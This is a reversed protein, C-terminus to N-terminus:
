KGKSNIVKQFAPIDVTRFTGDDFFGGFVIYSRSALDPTLQVHAIGNRDFKLRTVLEIDKAKAKSKQWNVQYRFNRHGDGRAKKCVVLWAEMSPEDLKPLTLLLMGDGQKKLKMKTHYGEAKESPRIEVFIDIIAFVAGSTAFFSLTALM